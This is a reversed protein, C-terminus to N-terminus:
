ARRGGGARKVDHRGRATARVRRRCPRRAPDCTGSRDPRRIGYGDNLQVRRGVGALENETIVGVWATRSGGTLEVRPLGPMPVPYDLEDIGAVDHDLAEVAALDVGHDVKRLRAVVPERQRM